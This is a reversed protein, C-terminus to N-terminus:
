EIPPPGERLERDLLVLGAIAEAARDSIVEGDIVDPAKPIEIGEGEVSFLVDAPAVGLVGCIRELDTITFPSRLALKDAVTRQPLDALEALQRGSMGIASLHRRVEHVVRASLEPM